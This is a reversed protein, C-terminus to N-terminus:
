GRESRALGTEELTTNIAATDPVGHAHGHLAIALLASVKDRPRSLEAALQIAAAIEGLALYADILTRRVDDADSASDLSQLQDDAKNAAYQADAARQWRALALAARAWDAATREQEYWQVHRDFLTMGTAEDGADILVRALDAYWGSNFDRTARKAIPRTIRLAHEPQGATLWLRAVKTLAEDRSDAALKSAVREAIPALEAAAARQNGGTTLALVASLGGADVATPALARALSAARDPRGTQIAAHILVARAAWRAEPDSIAAVIRDGELDDGLRQYAAAFTWSLVGGPDTTADLNARTRLRDVSAREGLAAYIQAANALRQGGHEALADAMRMAKDRLDLGAAVPALLDLAAPVDGPHEDAIREAAAFLAAPWDSM